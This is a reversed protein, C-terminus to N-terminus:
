LMIRLKMYLFVRVLALDKHKRYFVQVHVDTCASNAEVSGRVCFVMVKNWQFQDVTLDENCSMSIGSIGTQNRVLSMWQKVIVAALKKVDSFFHSINSFNLFAFRLPIKYV